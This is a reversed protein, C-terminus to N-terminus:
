TNVGLEMDLIRKIEIAYEFPIGRVIPEMFGNVILSIAEEEKFGRSRLYDMKEKGIKGITAEHALEVNKNKSKIAPYTESQSDKSLLLSDCRMYAKAKDANKMVEIKGRFNAKGKGSVVSRSVIKSSTNKGIHISKGGTDLIRNKNAFNVSLNEVKSNDGKLITTPYFMSIKSGLSASLWKLSANKELVARKTALNIVEKTWNQITTFQVNAGEKVYIEVNGIHLPKELYIPASCGEIYHVKSNKEAIIITHEFQSIRNQQLLFFTQIPIDIEVNAPIKVLVGGSWLATHLASFKHDNYPILKAFYDKLWKYKKIAEDMPEIIVGKERLNKLMEEYIISSDMQVSIGALMKKEFESIGLKDLTKKMEQPLQSLSKIKNKPSYFVMKEYDINLEPGFKPEHMKNFAKIAKKRLKRMWQPEGRERSMKEVDIM